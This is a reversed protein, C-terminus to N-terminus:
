TVAPLCSARRVPWPCSSSSMPSSMEVHVDAARFWMGVRASLGSATHCPARVAIGSLVLAAAPEARAAGAASGAGQLAAALHAATEDPRGLAALAEAACGLAARREAQPVADAQREHARSGTQLIADAQRVSCAACTVGIYPFPFPRICAALLVPRGRAQLLWRAHALAGRPDGRQLGLWASAAHAAARVARAHAEAGATCAAACAAAEAAERSAADAVLAAGFPPGAGMDAPASRQAADTGCAEGSAAVGPVVGAVAPEASRAAGAEGSASAGVGPETDPPM